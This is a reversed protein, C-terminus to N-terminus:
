SVSFYFIQKNFGLTKQLLFITAGFNVCLVHIYQKWIKMLDFLSVNIQSMTLSIYELKKPSKLTCTQDTIHRSETLTPGIAGIHGLGLQYTM